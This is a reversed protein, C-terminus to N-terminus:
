SRPAVLVPDTPLSVAVSTGPTLAAAQSSSGDIQVTVDGSLLVGIRTVSGLFTRATVIGNGASLKRMRLGFGVNDLANMNPFLSYSQFVMGM